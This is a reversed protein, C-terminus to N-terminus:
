QVLELIVFLCQRRNFESSDIYNHRM